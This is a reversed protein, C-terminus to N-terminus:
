EVWFYNIEDFKIVKSYKPLLIILYILVNNSM